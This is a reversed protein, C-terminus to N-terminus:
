MNRIREFEQVTQTLFQEANRRFNLNQSSIFRKLEKKYPNLVKLLGSKNKVPYYVGNVYLYYRSSLEFFRELRGPETKEIMQAHKKEMVKCDGAYLMLYYGTAPCGPSNDKQFYVIRKGHLEAFGVNEPVLVISRFGPTRVILEDRYLDLRLLAEPYAVQQYLLRGKTYQEDKLYPHNKARPFGEYETGYFLTSFNESAHIYSIAASDIVADQASLRGFGLILMVFCIKKRVSM